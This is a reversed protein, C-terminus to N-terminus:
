FPLVLSDHFFLAMWCEVDCVVNGIEAISRSCENGAILIRFRRFPTFLSKHNNIIFILRRNQAEFPQCRNPRIRSYSGRCLPKLCVISFKHAKRKITLPFIGYYNIACPQSNRLMANSIYNLVQQKVEVQM